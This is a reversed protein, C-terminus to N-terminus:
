PVTGAVAVVDETAGRWIATARNPPDPPLTAPVGPGFHVYTEAIDPNGSVRETPEDDMRETRDRSVAQTEDGAFPRTQERQGPMAQTEDSPVAPPRKAVWQTLALDDDGDPIRETPEDDMRQTQDDRM